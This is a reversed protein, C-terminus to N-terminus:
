HVRFTHYYRLDQSPHDDAILSEWIEKVRMSPSRSRRRRKKKESPPAPPWASKIEESTLEESREAVTEAVEASHNVTVVHQQSVGTNLPEAHVADCADIDKAKSPTAVTPQSRTRPSFSRHRSFRPSATRRVADNAAAARSVRVDDQQALGVVADIHAGSSSAPLSPSTGVVAAASEKVPSLSKLKEKAASIIRDVQSLGTVDAQSMLAELEQLKDQLGTIQSQSIHRHATFADAQRSM